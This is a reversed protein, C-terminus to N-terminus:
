LALTSTLRLAQELNHRVVELYPRSGGDKEQDELAPRARQDQRNINLVDGAAQLLSLAQEGRKRQVDLLPDPFKM